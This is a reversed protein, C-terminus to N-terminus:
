VKSICFVVLYIFELKIFKTATSIKRTPFVLGTDTCDTNNLLNILNHFLNSRCRWVLLDMDLMGSVTNRSKVASPNNMM